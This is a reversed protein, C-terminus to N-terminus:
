FSNEHNYFKESKELGMKSEGVTIVEKRLKYNKIGIGKM